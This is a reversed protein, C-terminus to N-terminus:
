RIVPWSAWRNRAKGEDIYWLELSKGSPAEAAVPRVFVNGKAHDVRVILAPLAGGRNIVAVYSPQVSPHPLVERDAVFIALSAALAGATLAVARWRSLSRRLADTAAGDAQGSEIMTFAERQPGPLANDIREWLSPPPAIEPVIACLPALRAEWEAVARLAAQDHALVSTFSDGSMLMCRESCM